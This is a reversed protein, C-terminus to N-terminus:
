NGNNLWKEIQSQNLHFYDVKKEVIGNNILCISPMRTGGLMVFSRGLLICYPINTARTDEFFPTLMERYGNLVFYFPINPNRDKIIRMKNAAIRCYPCTLSM